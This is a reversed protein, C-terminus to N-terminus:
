IVEEFNVPFHVFRYVTVFPNDGASGEGNILNWLQFYARRPTAAKIEPIGLVGFAGDDTPRIGEAIASENTIDLLPERRVEEIVLTQRSAFKPLHLSVREKGRKNVPLTPNYTRAGGKELSMSGGAAYYIDVGKEEIEKAIETPKKKDLYAYTFWSEKVWMVDGAQYLGDLRRTETKCRDLMARSMYPKFLVPIVRRESM